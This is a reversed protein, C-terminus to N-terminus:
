IIAVGLLLIIESNFRGSDNVKIPKRSRVRRFYFLPNKWPFYFFITPIMKRRSTERKSVELRNKRRHFRSFSHFARVANGKRGVTSGGVRVKTLFRLSSTPAIEMARGISEGHRFSIVCTSFKQPFIRKEVALSQTPPYRLQGPLM